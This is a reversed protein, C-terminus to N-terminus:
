PQERWASITWASIEHNAHALDFSLGISAITAGGIILAVKVFRSAMFLTRSYNELLSWLDRKVETLTPM